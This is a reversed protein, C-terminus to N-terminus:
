RCPSPARVAADVQGTFDCLYFNFWSGYTATRTIEEIKGPWTDLFEDVTDSSPTSTTPWTASPARRGDELPPRAEELLGATSEGLDAINTLSAGIAERDEALGSVFRQLQSSCSTSSGAATPWPPRARRQPQRDDRGIM